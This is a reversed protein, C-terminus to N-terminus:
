FGIAAQVVIENRKIGQGDNPIINYNIKFNFRSLLEPEPYIILGISLRQETENCLDNFGNNDLDSMGTLNPINAQEYRICPELYKHIRYSTETFFGKSKINGNITDQIANVYEGRIAFKKYKYEADFCLISLNMQGDTSYAGSYYSFGFETTSFPKYGIRGGFAKNNNNNELINERMDRINGGYGGDKQELGNVMFIAYNFSMANTININGRLQAGVESWVIPIIEWHSLPRDAMINIYEPYLYENFRGIPMLFKGIRLTAYKSFAYDLIGYRVTIEDGGHEYELMLESIIKDKINIGFMPNFYHLDFTQIASKRNLDFSRFWADAYGHIYANIDLDELQTAFGGKAGSNISLDLLEDVSVGVKEALVILEDISLSLLRDNPLELIEEKSMESIEKKNEQASLSLSNISLFMLLILLINQAKM